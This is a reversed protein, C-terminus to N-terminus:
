LNNWSFLTCTCRMEELFLCLICSTPHQTAQLLVLHEWLESKMIHSACKSLFLLRSSTDVYSSVEGPDEEPQKSVSVATHCLPDLHLVSEKWRTSGTPATPTAQPGTLPVAWVDLPRTPPFHPMTQRVHATLPPVCAACPGGGSVTKAWPIWLALKSKVLKHIRLCRAPKNFHSSCLLLQQVHLSKALGGPSVWVLSQHKLLKQETVNSGINQESSESTQARQCATPGTNTDPAYKIYKIKM